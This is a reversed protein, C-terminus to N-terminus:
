LARQVSRFVNVVKRGGLLRSFFLRWFLDINRCNYFVQIVGRTSLIETDLLNVIFSVLRLLLAVCDADRLSVLNVGAVTWDLEVHATDYRSMFRDCSCDPSLPFKSFSVWFAFLLQAFSHFTVYAVYGYFTKLLRKNAPFSSLVYIVAQFNYSSQFSCPTFDM